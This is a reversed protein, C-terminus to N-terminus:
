SFNWLRIAKENRLMKAIQFRNRFRPAILIEFISHEAGRGGWFFKRERFNFKKSIKAFFTAVRQSVFYFAYLKNPMLLSRLVWATILKWWSIIGHDPSWSNPRHSSSPFTRWPFNKREPALKPISKSCSYYYNAPSSTYELFIPMPSQWSVGFSM